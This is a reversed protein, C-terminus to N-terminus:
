SSNSQDNGKNYLDKSILPSQAQSAGVQKMSERRMENATSQLSLYSGGHSTNINRTAKETTSLNAGSMALTGLSVM